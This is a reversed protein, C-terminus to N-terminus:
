AHLHPLTAWGAEIAERVRDRIWYYSRREGCIEAWGELIDEVREAPRDGDSPPITCLYEVVGDGLRVLYLEGPAASDDTRGIPGIWTLRYVGAHDDKWYLGYDYSDEMYGGDSAIQLRRNAIFDRHNIFMLSTM